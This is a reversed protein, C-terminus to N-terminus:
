KLEKEGMREVEVMVRAEKVESQAAQALVEGAEAVEEVEAVELEGEANVLGYVRGSVVLEPSGERYRVRLESIEEFEKVVEARWRLYQSKRFLPEYVGMVKRCREDSLVERAVGELAKKGHVENTLLNVYGGEVGSVFKMVHEDSYKVQKIMVTNNAFQVVVILPSYVNGPCDM